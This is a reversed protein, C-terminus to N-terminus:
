KLQVTDDANEIAGIEPSLNDDVDDEADLIDIEEKTFLKPIIWLRIPGLLVIFMPFTIALVTISKIIWLIIVLLLQILTYFHIKKKRLREVYKTRPYQSVHMFLLKLREIFQNGEISTIGMYMFIGYLVPM